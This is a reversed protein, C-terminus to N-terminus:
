QEKREKLHAQNWVESVKAVYFIILGKELFSNWLNLSWVIKLVM